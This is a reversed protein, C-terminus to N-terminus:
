KKKDVFVGLRGDNLAEKDIEADIDVTKTNEKVAGITFFRKKGRKGNEREEDKMKQERDKHDNMSILTKENEHVKKNDVAEVMKKRIDMTILNLKFAM